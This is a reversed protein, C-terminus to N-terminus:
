RPSARDAAPKAGRVRGTSGTKEVQEAAMDLARLALFDQYQQFPDPEAYFNCAECSFNDWKASVAQALCANYFACDTKKAEAIRAHDAETEVEVARPAPSDALRYQGDGIEGAHLVWGSRVLRRLANRVKLNGKKPDPVDWGLHMAIHKNKCPSIEIEGMAALVARENDNMRDLSLELSDGSQGGGTKAPEKKTM